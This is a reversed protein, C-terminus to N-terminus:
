PTDVPRGGGRSRLACYGIVGESQAKNYIGFEREVHYNSKYDAGQPGRLYFLVKDTTSKGTLAELPLISFPEELTVALEDIGFLFIALVASAPGRM